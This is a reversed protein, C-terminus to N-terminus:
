VILDTAAYSQIDPSLRPIGTRAVHLPTASTSLIACILYGFGITLARVVISLVATPIFSDTLYFAGSLKQHYAMPCHKRERVRIAKKTAQLASILNIVGKRPLTLEMEGM